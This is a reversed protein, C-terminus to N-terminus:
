IIKCRVTAPMALAACDHLLRQFVQCDFVSHSTLAENTSAADLPDATIKVSTGMVVFPTIVADSNISGHAGNNVRNIRTKRHEVKM